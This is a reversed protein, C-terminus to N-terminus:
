KVEKKKNPWGCWCSGTSIESWAHKRSCEYFTTTDNIDHYHYNGEEDYFPSCYMLTTEGFRVCVTSKKGEKQCEPCKM